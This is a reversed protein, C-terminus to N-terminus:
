QWSRTFHKNNLTDEMVELGESLFKALPKTHNTNAIVHTVLLISHYKVSSVVKTFSLIIPKIYSKTGVVSFQANQQTIIDYQTFTFLRIM